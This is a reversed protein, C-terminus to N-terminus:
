ADDPSSDVKLQEYISSSAVAQLFAKSTLNPRLPHTLLYRHTQEILAIDEAKRAAQERNVFYFPYDKGLYEVVAPLPNVLIPTARAICEIVVNNASSDYLEMYVLNSALLEDYADDDLFPLIEVLTEDPRLGFVTRERATLEDIYPRHQHVIARRLRGVPLYYISNLKRLWAGIQVIRKQPNTTFREFSFCQASEDTPHKLVAIPADLRERWWAALYESLCFLGLCHPLSQQFSQNALLSQPSQNYVFWDPMNPPNHLFGIWPRTHPQQRGAKDEGFTHEPFPEVWIGDDRHLSALSRMAFSWGSRHRGYDRALAGSLNLKPENLLAPLSSDTVSLSQEPRIKVHPAMSLGVSFEVGGYENLSQGILQTKVLTRWEAASTLAYVDLGEGFETRLTYEFSDLWAEFYASPSAFLGLSLTKQLLRAMDALAGHRYYQLGLWCLVGFRVRPALRRVDEALSPRSFFRALVTEVDAETEALRRTANREHQRYAVTVEKLWVTEFGAETIRLALDFDEAHALSPDFGGINLLTQRRVMMASPLAPQWLLWVKLDLNPAQLWPRREALLGGTEDVLRWGSHVIGVETRASLIVSQDALKTPNLFWDDADLFAVYEGRAAQIGCNRAASVGANTQRILRIRDRHVTVFGAAIEVTDDESGDDIIIIELDDLTQALVSEIAAALYRGANYAPIIVSVLCTPPGAPTLPQLRPPVPQSRRVPESGIQHTGADGMLDRHYTTFIPRLDPRQAFDFHTFHSTISDPKESSYGSFHYFILPQGNVYFHGDREAYTREHLNWYAANLGPHNSIRYNLDFGPLLDLWRQDCNLGEELKKKGLHRTRDGWWHLFRDVDESRRLGIFGGNYVGHQLVALDRWILDRDNDPLRILHPTILINRQQLEDWVSSQMSDFFYIDGDFYCLHDIGTTRFLHDLLFPKLANCLEFLNYRAHMGALGAIRMDALSLRTIGPRDLLPEPQPEDVCLIYCSEGPHHQLYSNLM